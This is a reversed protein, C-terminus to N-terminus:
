HDGPDTGDRTWSLTIGARAIRWGDATRVARHDLRLGSTRHPARGARYFHVTSGATVQAEDGDVTVLLDNTLHQTREGDVRAKRLFDVAEEVGDIRGGRPSDIRVDATYIERVGDYHEDDLLHVLRSFLDAIQARDDLLTAETRM